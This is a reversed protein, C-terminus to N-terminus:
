VIKLYTRNLSAQFREPPLPEPSGSGLPSQCAQQNLCSALCLKAERQALKVIQSSIATVPPVGAEAAAILKQRTEPRQIFELIRTGHLVARASRVARRMAKSEM